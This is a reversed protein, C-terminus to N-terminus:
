FIANKSIILYNIEFNNVKSHYNIFDKIKFIIEDKILQNNILDTIDDENDM